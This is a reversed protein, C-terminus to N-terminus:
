LHFGDKNNILPFILSGPSTIRSNLDNGVVQCHGKGGVVWLWLSFEGKFWGLPHVSFEFM